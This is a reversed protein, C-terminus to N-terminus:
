CKRITINHGHDPVNNSLNLTQGSKLDAMDQASLFFEHDHDGTLLKYNGPTENEVDSAPISLTAHPHNVPNLYTVEGKEDVCRDIKALEVDRGNRDQNCSPLITVSLSYMLGKAIFKRRKMGM